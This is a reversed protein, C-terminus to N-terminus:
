LIEHSFGNEFRNAGNERVLIGLSVRPATVVSAAFENVYDLRQRNLAGLVQETGLMHINLRM